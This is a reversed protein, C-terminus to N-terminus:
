DVAKDSEFIFIGEVKMRYGEPVSEWVLQLFGGDCTDRFFALEEM